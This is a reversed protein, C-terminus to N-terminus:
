QNVRPRPKNELSGDEGAFAEVAAFGAVGVGRLRPLTAESVGGLAHPELRAARILLALRMAGLPRANASPSRSAFVTSYFVADLGLRRARMLARPSHVAGTLIWSPHALRLRRATMLAREPLHVGAARAQGALKPDAGILVVLGRRRGLAALRAAEQPAGARGFGRYVVGAGRPLARLVAEPAAVREPDTFFFV